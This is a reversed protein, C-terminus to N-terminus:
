IYINICIYLKYICIFIICMEYIVYIEYWIYIYIHITTFPRCGAHICM